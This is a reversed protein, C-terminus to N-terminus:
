NSNNIKKRISEKIFEKHEQSPEPFKNYIYKEALKDGIKFDTELQEHTSQEKQKEASECLFKLINMDINENLTLMNFLQPYTNKFDEWKTNLNEHNLLKKDEIIDICNKYTNNM